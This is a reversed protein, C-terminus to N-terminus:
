LVCISSFFSSTLSSSLLTPGVLTTTGVSTLNGSGSYDTNDIKNKAYITGSVALTSGLQTHGVLQLTCSGSISGTTSVSAGFRAEGQNHFEGTGSIFGTPSAIKFIKKTDSYLELSGTRAHVDAQDDGFYTSGTTDILAIDKIHYMSASITGSVVLTGTLVLTSAAYGHVAATHYLFSTTGSLANTGTLFQVSGTPGKAPDSVDDCDIYAWGFQAM